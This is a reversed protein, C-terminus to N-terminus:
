QCTIEVDHSLHLYKMGTLTGIRYPAYINLLSGLVPLDGWRNKRQEPSFALENLVRGVNGNRWFKPTSLGVNTYVFKDNYFDEKKQGTLREIERPLTANTESHSEAWFCSKVYVNGDIHEFPDQEVELLICDEDIRLIYDYYQCVEWIDWMNFRCMGEYGGQWRDSIDHFQIDMRSAGRIYRQAKGDINGEHYLLIPYKSGFFKEIADNRRILTEYKELENYGRTLAVIANTM